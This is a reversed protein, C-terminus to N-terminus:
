ADTSCRSSGAGQASPGDDDRARRARCHAGAVFRALEAHTRRHRRHAGLARHGCATNTGGSQRRWLATERWPARSRRAGCRGPRVATAPRLGGRRGRRLLRRCRSRWRWGVDAGRDARFRSSVARGADRRVLEEGLDGAVPVLGVAQEHEGVALRHRRGRVAQPGRARRPNRTISRLSASSADGGAGVAHVARRARVASRGSPVAGARAQARCRRVRPSLSRGVRCTEASSVKSRSRRSPSSSGCMRRM